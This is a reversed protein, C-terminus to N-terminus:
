ELKMRTSDIILRTQNFSFKVLYLLWRPRKGQTHSVAREERPVAGPAWPPAHAEARPETTSGASPLRHHERAGAKSGAPPAEWVRRQREPLSQGEPLEGGAEETKRGRPGQAVERGKEQAPEGSPGPPVPPAESVQPSRRSEPAPHPPGGADGSLGGRPEGRVAARGLRAAQCAM